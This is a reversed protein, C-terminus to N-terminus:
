DEAPSIESSEHDVDLKAEADDPVSFFRWAGKEQSAEDRKKDKEKKDKKNELEAQIEMICKHMEAMSQDLDSLHKKLDKNEKELEEIKKASKSFIFSFLRDMEEIYIKLSFFHTSLRTIFNYM